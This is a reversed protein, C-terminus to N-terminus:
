ATVITLSSLVPPSSPRQGRYITAPDYAGEVVGRAVLMALAEPEPGDGGVPPLLVALRDVVLGSLRREAVAGYRLAALTDIKAVPGVGIALVWAAGIGSARILATAYAEEKLLGLQRYATLGGDLRRDLERLAEDPPSAVIPVVLVDAPVDWPLGPAVHVDM